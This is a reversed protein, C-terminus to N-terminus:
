EPSSCVSYEISSSGIVFFNVKLNYTPPSCYQCVLKPFPISSLLGILLKAKNILLSETSLNAAEKVPVPAVLAAKKFGVILVERELLVTSKFYLSYVWIVEITVFGKVNLLSLLSNSFAVNALM